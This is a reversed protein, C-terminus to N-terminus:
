ELAKVAVSSASRVVRFGLMQHRTEPSEVGRRTCRPWGKTLPNGGRVVKRDGSEPGQPNIWEIDQRVYDGYDFWDLCWESVNQWMDLCGYPTREDPFSGVPLNANVYIPFEEEWGKKHNGWPYLQGCNGRCAKEWQAETPLSYEMKLEYSLWDTFRCADFWSVHTIPHEDSPSRDTLYNIHNWNYNTAHLFTKWQSVTVCTRQIFYSSLWVKREVEESYDLDDEKEWSTGMTFDSEPVLLMSRKIEEM